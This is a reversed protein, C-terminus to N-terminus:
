QRRQRPDRPLGHHVRAARSSNRMARRPAFPWTRSGTTDWGRPEIGRLQLYEKAMDILKFNRYERAMESADTQQKEGCGALFEGSVPHRNLFFRSDARLLM